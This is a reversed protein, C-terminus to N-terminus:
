DRKLDGLIDKEVEELQANIEAKTPGNPLQDKQPAPKRTRFDWRAKTGRSDVHTFTDYRGLGDFSESADAVEDPKMGKVTIDTATGDVHQSKPAGGVKKNHEPCRYASNISISSNLSDRLKQLKKVHDLDIKQDQCKGCHCFFEGAKFNPTLQVKEDKGRKFIKINAM